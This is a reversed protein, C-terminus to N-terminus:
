QCPRPARCPGAAAGSCARCRRCPPTSRCPARPCCCSRSSSSRRPTSLEHQLPVHPLADQMTIPSRHHAPPMHDPHMCDGRADGVRCGSGLRLRGAWAGLPHRMGGNGRWANAHAIVFMASDILARLLAACSAISVTVKIKGVQSWKCGRSASSCHWYCACVSRPAPCANPRQFWGADVRRACGPTCRAAACRAPTRWPQSTIQGACPPWGSRPANHTAIQRTNGAARPPSRAHPALGAATACAAQLVGLLHQWTRQAYGQCRPARRSCACARVPPFPARRPWAGTRWRAVRGELLAGM